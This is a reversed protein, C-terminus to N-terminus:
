QGHRGQRTGRGYGSLPILRFDWGQDERALLGIRQIDIEEKRKVKMRGEKCVVRVKEGTSWLGRGKWPKGSQM